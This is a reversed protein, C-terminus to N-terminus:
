QEAQGVQGSPLLAVLVRHPQGPGRVGEAVLDTPAGGEVEQGPEKAVRLGLGAGVERGIDGLPGPPLARM